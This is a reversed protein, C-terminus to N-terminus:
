KYLMYIFLYLSSLLFISFVIFMREKTTTKANVPLNSKDKLFAMLTNIDDKEFSLTDLLIIEKTDRVSVTGVRDTLATIDKYYICKKKTFFSSTELCVKEDDYQISKHEFLYVLLMVDLVIHTMGFHSISFLYAVYSTGAEQFLYKTSIIITYLSIYLVLFRIFLKSTRIKSFETIEQM